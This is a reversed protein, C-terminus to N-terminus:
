KRIREHIFQHIYATVVGWVNFDTRNTVNSSQFQPNAPVLWTSGDKWRCFQKVLFEGDLEAIIICGDRAELSKDVVLIDGSQIGAGIMSDGSVRVFYTAAACHVLVSNLDMPKELGCSDVSASFSAEVDEIPTEHQKMITAELKQQEVKCYYM